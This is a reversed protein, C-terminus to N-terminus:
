RFKFSSFIKYIDEIFSNNTHNEIGSSIFYDYKIGSILIWHSIFETTSSTSYNSRREYGLIDNSNIFFKKEFKEKDKPLFIDINGHNDKPLVDITIMHDQYGIGRPTISVGFLSTNSLRTDDRSYVSLIKGVVYEPYKFEFEYKENQYTKWDLTDIESTSTAVMITAIDTSENVNQIQYLNANVELATKKGCGFLGLTLVLTLSCLIIANNNLKKM